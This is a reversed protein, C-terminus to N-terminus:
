ALWDLTGGVALVEELPASCASSVVFNSSILLSTTWPAARGRTAVLSGEFSFSAELLMSSISAVRGMGGFSSGLPLAWTDGM